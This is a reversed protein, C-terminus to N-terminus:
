FDLNVLGLIDNPAIFGQAQKDGLVHETDAQGAGETKANQVHLNGLVKGKLKDTAQDPGYEEGGQPIPHAGGAIVQDFIHLPSQQNDEEQSNSEGKGAALEEFIPKTVAM